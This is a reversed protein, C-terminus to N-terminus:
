RTDCCGTRDRVLRVAGGPEAVIRRYFCSRVGTHCAAGTQDVRLVVADQDCDIRVERVEQIHGSTDGKRWLNQRSRSWYHARGTALTKDLAEANMHAVMLVDNNDVDIVVATILGNADWKPILQDTTDRDSATM